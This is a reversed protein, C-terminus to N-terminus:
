SIGILGLLDLVLGHDVLAFSVLQDPGEFGLFFLKQLLDSLHLLHECLEVHALQVRAHEAALQLLQVLGTLLQTVVRFHHVVHGHGLLFFELMLLLLELVRLDLKVLGLWM